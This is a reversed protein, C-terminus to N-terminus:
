QGDTAGGNSAGADPTGADTSDDRTENEDTAGSDIVGGTGESGTQGSGTQGSDTQGSDTQGSDPAGVDASGEDPREGGSGEENVAEEDVAKDTVPELGGSSDLLFAPALGFDPPEGEAAPLGTEVILEIARDIPIHVVGTERDIWGYSNLREGERTLLRELESEPLADLGPGPVARPTTVVPPLQVAVDVPEGIWRGILWWLFVLALAIAVLLGGMFLILPASRVDDAEYHRALTEPDIPVDRGSSAPPGEMNVSPLSQEADSM